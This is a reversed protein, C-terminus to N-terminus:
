LGAADLRSKLDDNEAKLEKVAEVLLAPVMDYHVGKVGEREFVLEPAASEVNQAIFGLRPTASPDKKWNYYVGSIQSVASLPSTIPSINTKLSIDSANTTLVGNADVSLNNASANNGIVRFRANGSVDLTESPWQTPSSAAVDVLAGGIGVQDAADIIM